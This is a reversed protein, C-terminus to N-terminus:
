RGFSVVRNGRISPPPGKGFSRNSDGGAEFTKVPALPSQKSVLKEKERPDIRFSKNLLDRKLFMDSYPRLLIGVTINVLFLLGGAEAWLPYVSPTM